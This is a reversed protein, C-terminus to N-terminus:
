KEVREDGIGLDLWRMVERRSSQLRNRPGETEVTIEEWVRKSRM